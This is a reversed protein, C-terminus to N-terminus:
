GKKVLIQTLRTKIRAIDRRKLKISATNKIPDAASKQLRINLLDKKYTSMSDYLESMSKSIIEQYKM